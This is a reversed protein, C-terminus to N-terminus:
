SGAVDPEFLLLLAVLADASGHLKGISSSLRTALSAFVEPPPM